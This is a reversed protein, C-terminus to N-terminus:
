IMGIGSASRRTKRFSTSCRHLNSPRSVSFESFDEFVCLIIITLLHRKSFGITASMFIYEMQHPELVNTKCGNSSVYNYAFHAWCLKKSCRKRVHQVKEVGLLSYVQAECTAKDHIPGHCISCRTLPCTVKKLADTSSSAKPLAAPRKILQYTSSSELNQSRLKFYKCVCM